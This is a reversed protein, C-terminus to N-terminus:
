DVTTEFIHMKEIGKWKQKCILCNDCSAKENTYYIALHLLHGGIYLVLKQKGIEEGLAPLKTSMHDAQHTIVSSMKFMQKGM